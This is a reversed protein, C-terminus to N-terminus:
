PLVQRFLTIGFAIAGVTLPINGARSPAIHAMYSLSMRHHLWGPLSEAFNCCHHGAFDSCRTRDPDDTGELTKHSSQLSYDLKHLLEGVLTRGIKHGLRCLGASPKGLSRCTWLLPSQPDGRTDPEVLSRPADILSPDTISMPRCGGGPRRVRFPDIVAGCGCERWAKGDVGRGGGAASARAALM